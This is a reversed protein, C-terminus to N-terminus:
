RDKWVRIKYRLILGRNAAIEKGGIIAVDHKSDEFEEATM